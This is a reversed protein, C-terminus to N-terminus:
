KYPPLVAPCRANFWKFKSKMAINNWKHWDEMSAADPMTPFLWKKFDVKKSTFHM